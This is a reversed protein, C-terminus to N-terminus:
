GGGGKRTENADNGRKSVAKGFARLELLLISSSAELILPLLFSFSCNAGIASSLIMSSSGASEVEVEVEDEEVVSAAAGCSELSASKKM